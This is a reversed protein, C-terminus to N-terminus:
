ADDLTALATRVTHEEHDGLDGYLAAAIELRTRAGDRDGRAQALEGLYHQALARGRPRDLATMEQLAADLWTQAADHRGLGTLARGYELGIRATNFPDTGATRFFLHRADDLVPLAEEPRGAGILAIAHNLASLGERRFDGRALYQGRQAEILELARAYDGYAQAVAALGERATATGFVRTNDDTIDAAADVANAFAAAAGDLNGLDYCNWALRRWAHAIWTPNKVRQACDLALADAHARDDHRRRFIFLAWMSDILLWVLRPDDAARVEALALLNEREIELWELAAAPDPFEVEHEPSFHVFEAAYPERYPTAVADAARVAALYWESIRGLLQHRQQPDRGAQVVAHRRIQDHMRYRGAPEEEVLSAQVLRRLHREAVLLSTDLAAAIVPLGVDPGPHLGLAQYCIRAGEPLGAYSAAFANMIADKQDALVDAHGHHVTTFTTTADRPLTALGAGTVTLALPLGACFDLLRGTAAHHAHAGAVQHLLLAAADDPLPPVALLRVGTTILGPRRDRITILVLSAPGAPILPEIQDPGAANDLLLLLIRRDATITRWLGAQEDVRAPIRGDPVGVARLMASLADGPTRPGAPDHAGLRVFIQGDPFRDAAHHAWRVALATKGIGGMGVLGVLPSSHREGDAFGDLATLLHERDVWDAATRPLQRPM